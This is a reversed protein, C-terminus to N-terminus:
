SLKIFSECANVDGLSWAKKYHELAKTNNKEVGIGKEYMLGFEFCGTKDDLNCAKKFYEVAKFDDQKVVEGEKYMGGLNSCGQGKGLACALKYYEAAKSKDRKVNVGFYYTTGLTFCSEGCGENCDALAKLEKKIQKVRKLDVICLNQAVTEKSNRVRYLVNYQNTMTDSLAIYTQMVPEIMVCLVEDTVVEGNLVYFIKDGVGFDHEFKISTNM